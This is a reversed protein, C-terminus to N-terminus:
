SSALRHARRANLHHSAFHHYKQQLYDHAARSRMPSEHMIRSPISEAGRRAIGASHRRQRGAMVALAAFGPRSHAGSEADHTMATIRGAATNKLVSLPSTGVLAGDRLYEFDPRNRLATTALLPWCGLLQPNHLGSACRGVIVGRMM